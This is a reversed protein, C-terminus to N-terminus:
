FTIITTCNNLRESIFSQHHMMLILVLYYGMFVAILDYIVILGYPM